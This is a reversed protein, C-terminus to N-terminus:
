QSMKFRYIKDKFCDGRLRQESPQVWSDETASFDSTYSGFIGAQVMYALTKNVDARPLDTAKALDNLSINQKPKDIYFRRLFQFLQECLFLLKEVEYVESEIDLLSSLNIYYKEDRRNVYGGSELDDILDLHEHHKARFVLADIGKSSAVSAKFLKILLQKLTDEM